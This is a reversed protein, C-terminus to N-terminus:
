PWVNAGNATNMAYLFGTAGYVYITPSGTTPDPAVTATSTFGQAGCTKHTVFGIFRRWLLRGTAEDVAYFYGNRAGIYVVGNYVVPSALFGGLGSGGTGSPLFRWASVVQAANAPTIAIAAQDDSTHDASYLYQTWNIFSQGAAAGAGLIGTLLVGSLTAATFWRFKMM